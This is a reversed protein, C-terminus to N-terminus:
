NLPFVLRLTTGSGVASEILMYGGNEEVLQKSIALGMGYGTAKTTYYPEFVKDLYDEPIGSGNDIVEIMLCGNTQYTKIQITGGEEPLADLANVVLNILIQKIQKPDAYITHSELDTYFRVRRQLFDVKMLMALENVLEKISTMEKNSETFKSYDLLGDIIENLRKLESPIVCLAQSMFQVNDSKSPMLDVYQKIASLPNRIEHAISASMRGLTSLKDNQHLAEHFIKEQTIDEVMLILENEAGAKYDVPSITYHLYVTEKKTNISTLNGTYSSKLALANDFLEIGLTRCIELETWHLNIEIGKDIIDRSAQNFLTVKGNKDFVVIGNSISNLIHMKQADQVEIRLKSHLLEKTRLNVEQQLRKNILFILALLGTLGVSVFVAIILLTKWKGQVEISEGFWKENISKLTGKAKINSIGANLLELTKQNGKRVACAYENTSVTEGVIKVEDMKKMQQLNYIGTARNGLVAGVRGELLAALASPQDPYVSLHIEKTKSILEDNVDGKQVAVVVNELDEIGAVYTNDANVFIVQSSLYYPDSFDYFMERSDTRTMGQIVDVKGELLALKAQNWEMPIFEIEIGMEIAIARMVDVNYGRFTTTTTKSSDMFEFPPYNNDGAVKLITKNEKEDAYASFGVIAILMIFTFVITRKIANM